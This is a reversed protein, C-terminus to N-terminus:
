VVVSSPGASSSGGTESGIGLGGGASGFHAHRAPWSSGPRPRTANVTIGGDGAGGNNGDDTSIPGYGSGMTNRYKIYSLVSMVSTFLAAFIAGSFITWKWWVFAEHTMREDVWRVTNDKGTIVQCSMEKGVVYEEKYSNYRDSDTGLDRNKTVHGLHDVDLELTINYGLPCELYCKRYWNHGSYCEAREPPCLPDEFGWKANLCLRPSYWKVTDRTLDDCHPQREDLMKQIEMSELNSMLPCKTRCDFRPDVSFLTVTCSYEKVVSTKHIVGGFLVVFFFIWFSIAAIAWKTYKELHVMNSVSYIYDVVTPPPDQLFPYNAPLM